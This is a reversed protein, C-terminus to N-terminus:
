LGAKRLGEQLKASYQPNAFRTGYNKVDFDPSLRRVQGAAQRAQEEEGLQSLTATRLAQMSVDRPFRTLLVDVLALAERYRGSVYYAVALNLGNGTGLQPELRKAMELAAIGEDIRGSYLLASGRRTLATSDSPNLAIAREAHDLAEQSQGLNSHIGALLAHARAHARTDSSALTRKALEEARGMAQGADEVWGYLARQFEAEGLVTLTDVYDPALDRARALLARAERNASRDAEYLLWRARLVLDHAELSETPKTFVRRQEIQTLKVHLTTVISKVIRDQIEFLQTGEGDYRESWLLAGQDADSLEIAVRLKGDAERVSGQVIYRAGLEDRIAQPAPAKGKFGQVANRSMVRVGSFRGLANIIDETMGDSFYDRKSDGSLNSLPLVAVTPFASGAAGKTDGAIPWPMRVLKALQPTAVIAVLAVTFAAAAGAIAVRHRRAFPLAQVPLPEKGGVVPAILRYGRKSITEIYKPQHADDGLAKRLKIIAQTLADDGVVVGPWVAALLEDRSVAHGAHRALYVLVEIVKPELRVTEGNRALENHAPDVRWSGIRLEDGRGVRADPSMVAM